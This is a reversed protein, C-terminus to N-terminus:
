IENKIAKEASIKSANQNNADLMKIGRRPDIKTKKSFSDIMYSPPSM